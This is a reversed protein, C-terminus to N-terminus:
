LVLALREVRVLELVGEYVEEVAEAVLLNALLNRADVPLAPEVVGAHRGLGVKVGRIGVLAVGEGVLPLIGYTEGETGLDCLCISVAYWDKVGEAASM